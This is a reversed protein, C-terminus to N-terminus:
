AEVSFDDDGEEVMGAADTYPNGGDVMQDHYAQDPDEIADLNGALLQLDYGQAMAADYALRIGYGEPGPNSVAHRSHFPNYFISGLSASLYEEGENGFRALLETRGAAERVHIYLDMDQGDEDVQTGLYHCKGVCKVLSVECDHVFKPQSAVEVESVLHM